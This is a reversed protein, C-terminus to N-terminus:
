GEASPSDGFLVGQATRIRVAVYRYPKTDRHENTRSPVFPVEAWERVMGSKEQAWFHWEEPLLGEIERRLSQSMDASVAFRWGLGDWHDLAEYEYAASDSRIQVQWGGERTPLAAYAQDVLGKINQAARM